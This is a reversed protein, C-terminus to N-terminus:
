TAGYAWSMGMCCLGIAGVELGQGLRRTPIKQNKGTM